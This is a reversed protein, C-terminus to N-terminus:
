NDLVNYKQLLTIWQNRYKAIEAQQLGLGGYKPAKVFVEQVQFLAWSTECCPCGKCEKEQYQIICSTCILNVCCLTLGLPGTKPKVCCYCAPPQRDSQFKDKMGYVHLMEAEKM